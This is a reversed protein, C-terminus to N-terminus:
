RQRHLATGVAYPRVLNQFTASPDVDLERDLTDRFTTFLHVAAAANGEALHAEVALRHPVESLPDLLTAAVAARLARAPSGTALHRRALAELAGVRMRAVRDREALVWDEYWDPLLEAGSVLLGDAPDAEGHPGTDPATAARAQDLLVAVDVAVDTALALRDAAVVIDPAARHLRWLMARIRAAAKPDPQQPWLAAALDLRRHPGRLALIAVARRATLPCDVVRGDVVLRWGGLLTLAARPGHGPPAPSTLERAAAVTSLRSATM